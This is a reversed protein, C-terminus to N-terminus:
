LQPESKRTGDGYETDTPSPVSDPAAERFGTRLFRLRHMSLIAGRGIVPEAGFFLRPVQLMAITDGFPPPVGGGGQGWFM